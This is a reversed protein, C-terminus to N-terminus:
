IEAHDLHQNLDEQQPQEIRYRRLSELEYCEQQQKLKEEESLCLYTFLDEETEIEFGCFEVMQGCDECCFGNEVGLEDDTDAVSSSYFLVGDQQVQIPTICKVYSKYALNDSGCCSCKFKLTRM